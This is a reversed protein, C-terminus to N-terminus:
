ALHVSRGVRKVVYLHAPNRSNGVSRGLRPLPLLPQLAPFCVHLPQALSKGIAIQPLRLEFEFGQYIIPWVNSLGIGHRMRLKSRQSSRQLAVVQGGRALSQAPQLVLSWGKAQALRVRVLLLCSVGCFAFRTISGGWPLEVNSCLNSAM